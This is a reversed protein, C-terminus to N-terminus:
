RVEKKQYFFEVFCVYRCRYSLIFDEFLYNLKQIGLGCFRRIVGLNGNIYYISDLFIIFSLM